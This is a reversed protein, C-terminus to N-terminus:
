RPIGFFSRATASFRHQRRRVAIELLTLTVAKSWTERDGAISSSGDLCVVIPGKAKRKWARLSYQLLEQDLFGASFDERLIPHYLRLMRKALLASPIKPAPPM